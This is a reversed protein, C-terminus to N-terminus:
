FSFIVGTTSHNLDSFLTFEFCLEYSFLLIISGIRVDYLDVSNNSLGDTLTVQIKNYNIIICHSQVYNLLEFTLILPFIIYVILGNICKGQNIQSM